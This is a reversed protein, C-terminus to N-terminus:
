FHFSKKNSILDQQLYIEWSFGKIDAASQGPLGVAFSGEAVPLAKEHLMVPPSFPFYELKPIIKGNFRTPPTLVTDPHFLIICQPCERPHQCLHLHCRPALQHGQHNKPLARSRCLKARSGGCGERRGQGFFRSRPELTADGQCPSPAPGAPTGRPPPVPPSPHACGAAGQGAGRRGPAAIEPPYVPHRLGAVESGGEWRERTFLDLGPFAEQLGKWTELGPLQASSRGAWGWSGSTQFCGPLLAIGLRADVEAAVGRLRGSAPFLKFKRTM